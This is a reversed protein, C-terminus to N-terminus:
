NVDEVAPVWCHLPGDSVFVSQLSMVCCTEAEVLFWWWANQFYGRLTWQCLVIFSWAFSIEVKSYQTNYLYFFYCEMSIQTANLRDTCTAKCNRIIAKLWFRFMNRLVYIYIYLMYMIYIHTYIYVNYIYISLSLSLSYMNCRVVIDTVCVCVYKVGCM